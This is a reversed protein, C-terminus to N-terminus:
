RHALLDRWDPFPAAITRLIPYRAGISRIHEALIPERHIVLPWHYHALIPLNETDLARLHAPYNYREDLYEVALGLSVIAAALGIQDSHLRRESIESDTQIKQCCDRWAAALAVGRNIAVVGSNFYPYGSEGSVTTTTRWKPLPVGATAYVRDWDSQNASFTQLDAPKVNIPSAFRPDDTFPRLCLIDSDLFVLKDATTAVELCPIKNAHLFSVAIPNTIPTLRVSLRRLLGITAPQLAGWQDAPTPIAAILEHRPHLWRRLSAALLLAKVELEGVQCIFVFAFRRGHAPKFRNFWM